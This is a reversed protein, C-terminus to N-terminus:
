LMTCRNSHARSLTSRIAGIWTRPAPMPHTSAVGFSVKNNSSECDRWGNVAQTTFCVAAHTKEADFPQREGIDPVPCLGCPTKFKFHQVPQYHGCDSM